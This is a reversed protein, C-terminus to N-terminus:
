FSLAVGTMGARVRTLRVALGTRPAEWMMGNGAYVAIHGPGAVLDGPRLSRISVRRGMTAQAQALRPMRIGIQAYAYQVLGSCDFGKTRAGRGIGYTAGRSNGGGWSYPVGQQAAIIRLLRSRADKGRYMSSYDLSNSGRYVPGSSGISDSIKQLRARMAKQYGLNPSVPTVTPIRPTYVNETTTRPATNAAVNASVGPQLNAGPNNNHFLDYVRQQEPSYFEPLQVTM